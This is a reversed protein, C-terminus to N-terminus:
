LPFTKIGFWEPTLGLFLYPLLRTGINYIFKKLGYIIFKQLLSFHTM